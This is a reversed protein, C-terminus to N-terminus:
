PLIPESPCESTLPAGIVGNHPSEMAALDDIQSQKHGNIIARLTATLYANLKGTEALSAITAWNAAGADQGAFLANKRNLAIPRITREVTNTDIGIRGDTLLSPSRPGLPAAYAGSRM